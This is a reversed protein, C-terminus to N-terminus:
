RRRRCVRSKVKTSLATWAQRSAAAAPGLGDALGHVDAAAVADGDEVQDPQDVVQEGLPHLRHEDRGGPSTRSECAADVLGLPQDAVARPAPRSPTAAV